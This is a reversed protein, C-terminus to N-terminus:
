ISRKLRRVYEGGLSTTMWGGGHRRVILNQAELAKISKVDVTREIGYHIILLCDRREKPMYIDSYQVMDIRSGALGTLKV